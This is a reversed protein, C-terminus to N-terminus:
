LAFNVVNVKTQQVRVMFTTQVIALLIKQFVKRIKQSNILIETFLEAKSHKLSSFYKVNSFSTALLPYHSSIQFCGFIQKQPLLSACLCLLELISGRHQSHWWLFFFFCFLIKTKGRSPLVRSSPKRQERQRGAITAKKKSKVNIQLRQDNIEFACEYM